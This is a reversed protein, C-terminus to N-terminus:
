NQETLVALTEKTYTIHILTDHQQHDDGVYQQIKQNKAAMGKNM